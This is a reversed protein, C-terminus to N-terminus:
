KTAEGLIRMLSGTMQLGLDVLDQPSTAALNLPLTDVKARIWDTAIKEKRETEAVTLSGNAHQSSLEVLAAQMVYNGLFERMLAVPDSNGELAAIVTPQVARRLAEDDPHGPQGLVADLIRQCRQRVSLGNLDALKLGFEGLARRDGRAAALGAAVAAAGRGIQQSAKRTRGKAQTPGVRSRVGGSGTSPAREPLLSKFPISPVPQRLTEDGGTLAPVVAVWFAEATPENKADTGATPEIGAFLEHAEAWPATGSGGFAGSTGM